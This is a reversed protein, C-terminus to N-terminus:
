KGCPQAATLCEWSLSSVVLWTWMGHRNDAVIRWQTERLLQMWVRRQALATAPLCWVSSAFRWPEGHMFSCPASLRETASLDFYRLLHQCSIKLGFMRGVVAGFINSREKFWDKETIKEGKFWECSAGRWEAGLKICVHLEDTGDDDWTSQPAVRDVSLSASAELGPRAATVAAPGFISMFCMSILLRVCQGSRM